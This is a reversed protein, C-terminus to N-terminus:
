RTVQWCLALIAVLILGPVGAARLTAQLRRASRTAAARRNGAILNADIRSQM